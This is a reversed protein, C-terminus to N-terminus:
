VSLNAANTLNTWMYAHQYGKVELGEEAVLGADDGDVTKALMFMSMPDLIKRTPEGGKILFAHKSFVHRNRIVTTTGFEGDIVTVRARGRRSDVETQRVRNSDTAANIDSLTNPNIVLVDPVGGLNFAVQQATNIDTVNFTSLANANVNSIFHMLGGSTRVKTSSSNSRVGYLINRELALWNEQTRRMLQHAWEDPVGYRGIKRQTRSMLMRDKYIQTFNSRLDRDRSINTPFGTGEATVNGLGLIMDGTSFATASTGFLGRHTALAVPISTATPNGSVQMIESAGAKVVRILDNARFRLGDPTAVTIEEGDAALNASLPIRRDLGVEDMWFFEIQDVPEKRLVMSGEATIGLTMPLDVPSLFNIAEDINVKVGAALEYSTTAGAIPTAM